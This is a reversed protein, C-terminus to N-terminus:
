PQFFGGHGPVSWFGRPSPPQTMGPLPATVDGGKGATQCRYNPSRREPAAQSRSCDAGPVPSAPLRPSHPPSDLGGPFEQCGSSFAFVKLHRGPEPLQWCLAHRASAGRRGGKGPLNGHIKGRSATPYHSGESPSPCSPQCPRRARGTRSNSKKLAFISLIFPFLPNRFPGPRQQPKCSTAGVYDTVGKWWTQSFKTKIM